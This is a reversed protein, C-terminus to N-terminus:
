KPIYDDGFNHFYTVNDDNVYCTIRLCEMAKYECLNTVYAEDKVKSLNNRLYGGSFKTQKLM